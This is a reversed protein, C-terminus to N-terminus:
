NEDEGMRFFFEVSQPSFRVNKVNKELCTVSLPVSNEESKLAVGELDAVVKFDSADLQHFASMGVICYITVTAPFIRFRGPANVVTVPVFLVTKEVVPEVPIEVTTKEFELKMPSGQPKSLSVVQKLDSKLPGIRGTDTPWFGLSDLLSVPGEVWVSDPDLHIPGSLDFQPHLAVQYDLRIPLRKGGKAGMKLGIYDLNISKVELRSESIQSQIRDLILRGEVLSLPLARLDFVLPKKRHFLSFNLLSWGSGGITARVETPPKEMFAQHEPLIYKFEFSWQTEYNQSLKVLFWFITAIGFCVLLETRDKRLTIRIERNLIAILHM